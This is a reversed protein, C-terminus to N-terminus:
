GNGGGGNGGGPRGPGGPGGPGGGGTVRGGGPGFGALIDSCAESASVFAPDDPDIEGFPGAFTAEGGGGGGGGGGPGFNSFDPDNMEYGNDRMCAAFEFLNDQIETFDGRGLGLTVGEILDSCEERAAQATERDFGADGPGTGGRFAFTVAGDADVIPDEIEVGNARMCATFALLADEASIEAVDGDPAPIAVIEDDVAGSLSAVGEGEESSSGGCAGAILLFVGALLVLKRTM